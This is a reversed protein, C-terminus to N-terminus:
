GAIFLYILLPNFTLAAKSRTWRWNKGRPCPGPSAPPPANVWGSCPLQEGKTLPRAERGEGLKDGFGRWKMGSGWNEMRPWPIGGPESHTFAGGGAQNKELVKTPGRPRPRIAGAADAPIPTPYHFPNIMRRLPAPPEERRRWSSIPAKPHWAFRVRGRAKAFASSFSSTPM